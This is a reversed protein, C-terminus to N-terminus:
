SLNNWRMKDQCNKWFIVSINYTEFLSTIEWNAGDEVVAAGLLKISGYLVSVCIQTLVVLLLLRSVNMVKLGIFSIRYALFVAKCSSAPKAKCRCNWVLSTFTYVSSIQVPTCERPRVHINLSRYLSEGEYGHSVHTFDLFPFDKHVLLLIVATLRKRTLNIRWLLRAEHVIKHWVM